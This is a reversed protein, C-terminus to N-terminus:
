TAASDLDLQFYILDSAVVPFHLATHSEPYRPIERFGMDRYIAHMTTSARLTDAFISKLGMERAASIRMEIMRRGIGHGRGEPKVYMRKFEAADPRMKRMMGMGILAGTDTHALVMAGNPPFYDDFGDWFDQTGMAPTLQEAVEPIARSIQLTYFEMLLEQLSARDLDRTAQSLKVM